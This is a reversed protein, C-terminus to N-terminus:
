GFVKAWPQPNSRRQRLYEEGYATIVFTNGYSGHGDRVRVLGQQQLAIILTQELESLNSTAPMPMRRLLSLATEYQSKTPMRGKVTIDSTLASPNVARGKVRKLTWLDRAHFVDTKVVGMKGFADREIQNVWVEQKKKNVRTVILTKGFYDFVDGVKVDEIKM